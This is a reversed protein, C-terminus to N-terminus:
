GPGYNCVISKGYLFTSRPCDTVGCGLSTSDAWIIQTYHGCVGNCKLTSINYSSHENFWLNFGLEVSGGAAFNQGVWSWRPDARDSKSDHGVTCKNSWIEAKQALRDDWVMMPMRLAAPQGLIKGLLAKERAQNHLTLLSHKERETIKSLGSVLLLTLTICGLGFQM